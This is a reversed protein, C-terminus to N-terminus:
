KSAAHKAPQAGPASSLPSLAGSSGFSVDDVYFNSNGTSDTEITFKLEVTQGAYAGLDLKQQVWGGTANPQCLNYTLLPYGDVLVYAYDYGCIDLSGILYWFNLWPRAPSITVQQYLAADENNVDGLRAVWTGSHAFDMSFLLYYHNLSYEQWGVGRGQEFDGNVIGPPAGRMVVPLYDYSGQGASGVSFGWWSNNAYTPTTYGNFARVQWYYTTDSSLGGLTASTLLDNDIWNSCAGDDSSDYCYQYRTVPSAPQWSITLAAPQDTAGNEPSSKGFAGPSAPPLLYTVPDGYLNFDYFNMLRTNYEPDVLDSKADYLAEAASQGAALRSAYEYGIGSNTTSGDFDGYGVGTNFWSVRTASVAAVAGQKLLAYQLNGPNEPYGNNCSNQYVFAPHEDDLATAQSANFLTGDWCSGYGVAAETDSGHGWWLVLGYDNASWRQRVLTGGRLEENSTYFSDPIPSCSTLSGQQYQTWSTFGAGNLYDAKMQEALPAGDYNEESFSMPLLAQKRWSPPGAENEYDMIKLLIADLTSYAGSYVPIRGVFVEPTLDVGGTGQDEVYEGFYGDGDKDWNGTLDAFFYDTPAQKYGDGAFRRPWTMKMPVDGVTDGESPDDPDPDGVLLVYRLGLAAYNDKLWQRIKEATGNPSQGTLGGYEDETITLVRLGHGQKHLIFEDLRASGAEIANTTVIVYDYAVAAQSSAEVPPYWAKAQAYNYFKAQAKDDLVSDSLLAADTSPSLLRYHITVLLKSAVRLQGSAPEFAFPSHLLSVFRWKRMQGTSLLRVYISATTFREVQYSAKHELSGAGPSDPPLTQLQYEGPLLEVQLNSIELWISALDAEPPLALRLVRQPLAQEGPVGSSAFGEAQISDQGGRESQVQYAPALLEVRISSSDTAGPLEILGGREGAPLLFALVFLSHILSNVIFRDKKRM